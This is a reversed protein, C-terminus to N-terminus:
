PLQRQRGLFGTLLKLPRLGDSDDGAILHPMRQAYLTFHFIARLFRVLMTVLDFITFEKPFAAAFSDAHVM